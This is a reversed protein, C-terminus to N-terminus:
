THLKLCLENFVEVRGRSPHGEAVNNWFLVTAYPPSQTTHRVSQTITWPGWQDSFHFVDTSPQTASAAWLHSLAPWWDGQFILECSVTHTRLNIVLRGSFAKMSQRSNVVAFESADLRAVSAVSTLVPSTSIKQSYRWQEVAFILKPQLNASNLNLIRDHIM